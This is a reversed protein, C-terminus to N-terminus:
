EFREIKVIETDFIDVFAEIKGSYESQVGIIFDGNNFQLSYSKRRLADRFKSDIDVVMCQHIDKVAIERYYGKRGTFFLRKNTVYLVGYDHHSFDQGVRGILAGLIYEGSFITPMKDMIWTLCERDFMLISRNDGIRVREKLFENAKRQDIIKEKTHLYFLESYDESELLNFAIHGGEICLDLFAREGIERFKVDTLQEYPTRHLLRDGCYFSVRNLETILEGASGEFIAKIRFHDHVTELSALSMVEEM